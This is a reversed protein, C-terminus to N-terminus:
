DPHNGGDENDHNNQPGKEQNNHNHGVYQLEPIANQGPNQNHQNLLLHQLEHRLNNHLEQILQRNHEIRGETDAIMQLTQFYQHSEPDLINLNNILNLHHQEQLTNYQQVGQLNNVLENIAMMDPPINVQEPPQHPIPILQFDTESQFNALINRYVHRCLPCYSHTQSWVRLCDLCFSHHCTDTLSRNTMPELCIQCVQQEPIDAGTNDKNNAAMLENFSNEFLLYYM